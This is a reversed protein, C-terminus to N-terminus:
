VRGDYKAPELVLLASWSFVWVSIPHWLKQMELNADAGESRVGTYNQDALPRLVIGSRGTKSRYAVSLFLWFKSTRALVPQGNASM